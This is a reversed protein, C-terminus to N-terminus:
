NVPQINAAKVVRAFRDSESKLFASFQEPSSGIAETEMAALKEKVDPMALVEQVTAALKAIVPKPTGAPALVGYWIGTTYGPLGAEIM